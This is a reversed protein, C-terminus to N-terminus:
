GNTDLVVHAAGSILLARAHRIGMNYVAPGRGVAYRKFTWLFFTTELTMTLTMLLASNNNYLRVITPM